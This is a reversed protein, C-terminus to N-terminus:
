EAEEAFHLESPPVFLKLQSAHVRAKRRHGQLELVDFAVPGLKKTIRCPGIWRDQLAGRPGVVKRMVLSGEEFATASTAGKDLTRKNTEHVQQSVEVALRRADTLRQVTLEEDVVQANTLGRPFFAM